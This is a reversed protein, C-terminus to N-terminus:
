RPSVVHLTTIYVEGKGLTDTFCQVSHILPHLPQQSQKRLRIVVKFTPAIGSSRPDSKGYMRANSPNKLHCQAAILHLCGMYVQKDTAMILGVISLTAFHFTKHSSAVGTSNNEVVFYKHGLAM